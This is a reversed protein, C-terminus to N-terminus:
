SAVHTKFGKSTQVHCVFHKLCSCGCDTDLVFVADNQGSVLPRGHAVDDGVRIDLLEILDTVVESHGNRSDDSVRLEHDPVDLALHGEVGHLLACRHGDVGGRGEDGGMDMGGRDGGGAGTTGVTTGVSKLFKDLESSGANVAFTATGPVNPSGTLSTLTVSAPLTASAVVLALSTVLSMRKM